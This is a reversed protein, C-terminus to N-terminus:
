LHMSKLPVSPFYGDGTNILSQIDFIALFFIAILPSSLASVIIRGGMDGKSGPPSAVWDDLIKELTPYCANLLWQTGKESAAYTIYSGDLGLSVQIGHVGLGVRVQLWDDLTSDVNHWRCADGRRAWFSGNPGLSIGFDIPAAVVETFRKDDLWKALKPYQTDFSDSKGATETSVLTLM